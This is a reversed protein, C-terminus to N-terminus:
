ADTLRRYHGLRRSVEVCLQRMETRIHWRLPHRSVTAWQTSPLPANEHHSQRSMKQEKRANYRCYSKTVSVTRGCRPCLREGAPGRKTRAREPRGVGPKARALKPRRVRPKARAWGPCRVGSDCRRAIMALRARSRALSKRVTDIMCGGRPLAMRGRMTQLMPWCVTQLMPRGAQSVCRRAIWRRQPMGGTCDSAISQRM